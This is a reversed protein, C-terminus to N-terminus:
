KWCLMSLSIIHVRGVSDAKAPVSGESLTISKEMDLIIHRELCTEVVGYIARPIGFPVDPVIFGWPGEFVLIDVWGLADLGGLVVSSKGTGTTPVRNDQEPTGRSRVPNLPLESLSYHVSAKNM